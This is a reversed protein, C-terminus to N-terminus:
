KEFISPNPYFSAWSFWFGIFSSTPPLVQGARPGSIAEGFINWLNGEDDKMVVPLQDQVPEFSLLDGNIESHFSNVFNGGRDGVVVLNTEEFLDEVVTVENNFETIPYAKVRGNIIVGHVREKRPLRSDDIAIPFLLFPDERYDAGTSRDTYPYVGYPRGLQLDDSIVTTNPFMQKWTGWTTEVLQYTKAEEGILEGNVCDLRMQSWTSNTRRDYPMLNTNYLFGSVGFTTNGAGTDRNWGVATGTLPCYTIAISKDQIDDNVIEHWDLILHPYARVDDGVKFGIVLDSDRLYTAQSAQIMPPNELALIGDKGVGGDLVQSTPVLWQGSGPPQRSTIDSDDSCSTFLMIFLAPFTIKLNM